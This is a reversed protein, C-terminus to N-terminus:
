LANWFNLITNSDFVKMSFCLRFTPYYKIQVYFWCLFLNQKMSSLIQRIKRRIIVSRHRFSLFKNFHWYFIWFKINPNNKQYRISGILIISNSRRWSLLIIYCRLKKLVSTLILVKKALNYFNSNEEFWHKKEKFFLWFFIEVKKWRHSNYL